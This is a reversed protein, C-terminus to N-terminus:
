HYIEVHIISTYLAAYDISTRNCTVLPIKTFENQTRLLQQTSKGAPLRQPQLQAQGGGAQRFVEATLTALVRARIAHRFARTVHVFRYTKLYHEPPQPTRELFTGKIQPIMCYWTPWFQQYTEM